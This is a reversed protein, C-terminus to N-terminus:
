KIELLSHNTTTTKLLRLTQMFNFINGSIVHKDCNLLINSLREYKYPRLNRAVEEYQELYKVEFGLPVMWFSLCGFTGCGAHLTLFSTKNNFMGAFQESACSIANFLAINPEAVAYQTLEITWVDHWFYGWGTDSPWREQIRVVIYM